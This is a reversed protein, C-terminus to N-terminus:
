ISGPGKLEGAEEGMGISGPLTAGVLVHVAEDSLEKGLLQAEIGDGRMLDRECHM